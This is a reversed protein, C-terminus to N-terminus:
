TKAVEPPEFFAAALKYHRGQWAQTLSVCVTTRGPERLLITLGPEHKAPLNPYYRAQLQPDTVDFEHSSCCYRLSVRRRHRVYAQGQAGITEEAWVRIPWIIEPQILFLSAPQKLRLPSGAELQRLHTGWLDDPHDHLRPLDDFNMRGVSKWTGPHFLWNEPQDPIPAPRALPIELIELLQPERGLAKRMLPVSVEGGDQSAVPRIWPGVSWANGSRIM